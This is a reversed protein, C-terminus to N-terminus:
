KKVKRENELYDNINQIDNELVKNMSNCIDHGKRLANPSDSLFAQLEKALYIGVAVSRDNCQGIYYEIINSLGDFADIQNDNLTSKFKELVSDYLKEAETLSPTTCLDYINDYAMDTTMFNWLIGQINM